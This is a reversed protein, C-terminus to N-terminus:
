RGQESVQQYWASVPKACGAASDPCHQYNWLLIWGCSLLLLLPVKARSLVDALAGTARRAGSTLGTAWSAVADGLNYVISPPRVGRRRYGGAIAMEALLLLAGAGTILWTLLHAALRSAPPTLKHVVLVVGIMVALMFVPMYLFNAADTPLVGLAHRVILAVSDLIM